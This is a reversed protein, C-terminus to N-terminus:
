IDLDDLKVGAAAPKPKRGQKKADAEEQAWNKAAQAMESCITQIDERTFSMPDKSFLEDLSAVSAESLSTQDSM